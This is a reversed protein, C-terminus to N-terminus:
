ASIQGPWREPRITIMGVEGLAIGGIEQHDGRSNRSSAPGPLPFVGSSCRYSVRSRAPKRLSEPTQGDQPRLLRRQPLYASARGRVLLSGLGRRLGDHTFREEPRIFEGLLKDLMMVEFRSATSITALKEPHLTGWRNHKWQLRDQTYSVIHEQYPLQVTALDDSFEVNLQDIIGPLIGNPALGFDGVDVLAGFYDTSHLSLLLRRNKRLRPRSLRVALGATWADIESEPFPHYDDPPRNVPGSHPTAVVLPQGARYVHQYFNEYM